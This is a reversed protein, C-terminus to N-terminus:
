RDTYISISWYGSRRALEDMTLYNGWDLEWWEMTVDRFAAVSLNELDVPRCNCMAIAFPRNIDILIMMIWLAFM